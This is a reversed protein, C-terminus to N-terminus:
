LRICSFNKLKDSKCLEGRNELRELAHILSHAAVEVTRLEGQKNELTLTYINKIMSFTYCFASFFSPFFVSKAFKKEQCAARNAHSNSRSVQTLRQAELV